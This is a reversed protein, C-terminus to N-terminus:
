WARALLIIFSLFFFHTILEVFNALRKSTYALNLVNMFLWPLGALAFLFIVLFSKPLLMPHDSGILLHAVMWLVFASLYYATVRQSLWHKMFRFDGAHGIRRLLTHQLFCGRQTAVKKRVIIM